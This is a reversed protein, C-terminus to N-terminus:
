NDGYLDTRLWSTQENDWSGHDPCPIWEIETLHEAGVEYILSLLTEPCGECATIRTPVRLITHGLAVRNLRAIASLAADRSYYARDSLGGRPDVIYWRDMRGKRSTGIPDTRPGAM